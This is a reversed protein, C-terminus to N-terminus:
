EAFRLIAKVRSEFYEYPNDGMMYDFFRVNGGVEYYERWAREYAERNKQRSMSNINKGDPPYPGM